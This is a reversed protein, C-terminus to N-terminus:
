NNRENEVVGETIKSMKVKYLKSLIKKREKTLYGEGAEIRNLHRHSIGLQQAVYSATFGNSIRLEKLTM